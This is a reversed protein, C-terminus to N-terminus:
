RGETIAIDAVYGTENPYPSAASTTDELDVYLVDLVKYSKAGFQAKVDANLSRPKWIAWWNTKLTKGLIYKVTASNQPKSSFKGLSATWPNFYILTDKHKGISLVLELGDGAWKAVKAQPASHDAVAFSVQPHNAQTISGFRNSTQKGGIGEIGTENGGEYFIEAAIDAKDPNAKPPPYTGKADYAGIAANFPKKEAGLDVLYWGTPTAGEHKAPGPKAFNGNFILNTGPKPLAPAAPAAAASVASSLAVLGAVAGFAAGAAKNRWTLRRYSSM